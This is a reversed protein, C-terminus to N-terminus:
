LSAALKRPSPSVLTVLTKIKAAELPYHQYRYLKHHNIRGLVEQQNDARRELRNEAMKQLSPIM